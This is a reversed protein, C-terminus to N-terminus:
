AKSPLSVTLICVLPTTFSNIYQTLLFRKRSKLRKRKLGIFIGVSYKLTHKLAFLKLSCPPGHLALNIGGKSNHDKYLQVM